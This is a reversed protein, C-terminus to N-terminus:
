GQSMGGKVEERTKRELFLVPWLVRQDKTAPQVVPETQGYYTGMYSPCLEEGRRNSSLKDRVKTLITQLTHSYSLFNILSKM